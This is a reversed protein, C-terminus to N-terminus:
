AVNAKFLDMTRGWALKAANANYRDGATDDNFAHNAGEYTFLQYNIKADKLAKEYDPLMGGLRTDLKPDAYNLLIKAKIKAVQDGAPPAGYFVSIANMKANTVAMQNMVGGGWCFGVAGVRGSLAEDGGVWAQWSIPGSYFYTEGAWLPRKRGWPRRADPGSVVALSYANDPYAASQGKALQEKAAANNPDVIPGLEPYHWNCIPLQGGLDGAGDAMIPRSPDM